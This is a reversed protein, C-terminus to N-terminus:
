KSAAALASAIMIRLDARQLSANAREVDVAESKGELRDEARKKAAKARDLDISSGHEAIDALVTVAEHTVEVFGGSIFYEDGQDQSDLSTLSGASLEAVMPAHDPLITMYGESGPLTVSKAAVEALKASPSVLRLQFEESM